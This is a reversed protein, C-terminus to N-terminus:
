RRRRCCRVVLCILILLISGLAVFVYIRLRKKSGDTTNRERASENLLPYFGYSPPTFIKEDRLVRIYGDEGWNKSFSNKLIWFDLGTKNDTGYGVAALVHNIQGTLSELDDYIGKKYFRFTEPILNLGVVVPGFEAIAKKLQEPSRIFAYGYVKVESRPVENKRCNGQKSTYPYDEALAIGNEMIYMYVLDESGGNCGFNEESCDVIEQESLQLLKGTKVFYQSELAAIASFAYCSGCDFHEKQDRVKTVANLDRWDLADPVEFSENFSSVQPRIKLPKFLTEFLDSWFRCAFFPLFELSTTWIPRQISRL